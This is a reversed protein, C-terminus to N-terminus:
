HKEDIMEKAKNLLTSPLFPKSLMIVEVAPDFESDQADSLDGSM